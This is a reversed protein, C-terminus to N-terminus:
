AGNRRKRWQIFLSAIAGVGGAVIPILFTRTVALAIAGEEGSLAAATLAGADILAADITNTASTINDDPASAAVKTLLTNLFISQAIAVGLFEGTSWISEITYRGAAVEKVDWEAAAVICTNFGLGVGYGTLFQYGLSSQLGSVPTLTYLM